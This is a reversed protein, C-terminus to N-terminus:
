QKVDVEDGYPHEASCRVLIGDTRADVRGGVWKGGVWKGGVWRDTPGDM